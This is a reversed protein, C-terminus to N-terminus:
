LDHYKDTIVLHLRNQHSITLYIGLKVALCIRSSMLCSDTLILDVVSLSFVQQKTSVQNVNCKIRAADMDAEHTRALTIISLDALLEALVFLLLLFSRQM